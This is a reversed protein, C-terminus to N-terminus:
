FGIISPSVQMLDDSLPHQWEWSAETGQNSKKNYDFAWIDKIKDQRHMDSYGCMMLMAYTLCVGVEVILGHEKAKHWFAIALDYILDIVDHHVIWFSSSGIYMDGTVGHKNMLMKIESIKNGRWNLNESHDSLNAELPVHIPSKRLISILNIPNSKFRTSSDIWVFYDYNLKSIGVKLYHLKFLGHSMDMQMADYCECGDIPIDTLVHFDVFNGSNRASYVSNKMFAAYQGTAVSWYCFSSRM